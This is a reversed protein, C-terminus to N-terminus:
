LIPALGAGFATFIRTLLSKFGLAVEPFDGVPEYCSRFTPDRPSLPEPCAPGPVFEYSTAYRVPWLDFIPLHESVKALSYELGSFVPPKDRRAIVWSNEPRMDRRISAALLRAFAPDDIVVASETNYDDGRPDFNHTGVVGIREDVVLSKAHLGFRVGARAVPVRRNVGIGAYRLAAYERSLPAPRSPESGGRGGEGSSGFRLVDPSSAPTGDGDAEDGINVSGDPNWSIGVAGTADLDVPADEPFPKFEHIEFGFDRLYRRKYKYSLAYTIFSDTAALSNTSIEVRPPSVRAQLAEFTRQAPKSLVLYPTQLLVNDEASAILGLLGPTTHISANAQERDRRHKQPLDAVFEMQRVPLAASVLKSRVLAADDADRSIAQVREPHQYPEHPLAPAGNRLLHRGVDSLQEVPVSLRAYWFAEFNGAMALTVPGTVLIDRDRFNYESNWDYYDNQYNRGGTIGVLGDVLLLKSHMRQNLRRWCCAAALAYQPYTIRAKGLMPNYVRLEFNAHASALASLTEVERLAALQDVLVRVHVGRRAATLLEDLVLHGADDEDFIYTQLDISRQAGRILDLRALLADQGYDLLLAHQLPAPAGAAPAPATPLGATSGVIDNGVPQRPGAGPPRAAVGLERLPSPRACADPASCDVETSRAQAAIHTAQERQQQSLSFCGTGALLWPLLWAYQWRKM